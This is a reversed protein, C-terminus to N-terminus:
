KKAAAVVYATYPIAFGDGTAFARVSQTVQREIAALAEPTQAALLAATRVGAHREAEFLFFDTPVDWEATIRELTVSEPAFGCRGLLRQWDALRGHRLHDPGQPLDVDLRGHAAVAQQVIAAGPSEGPDAWVTFAYRGGARLVRAADAFAREPHPLHLIGFNMMVADFRGDDFALRQADGRRFEIEPCRARAIAIMEPSFDIGTAIAGRAKAAEAVFGPGCAVDLVRMGERTDVADLLRPIFRTTLGGWTDQFKGAVRQWGRFELRSFEDGHEPRDLEPLNGDADEPDHAAARKNVIVELAQRKQDTQLDWIAGAVGATMSGGSRRTRRALYVLVMLVVFGIAWIVAITPNGSRM